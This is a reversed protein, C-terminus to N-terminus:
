STPSSARSSVGNPDPAHTLVCSRMADIRARPSSIEATEEFRTRSPAFRLEPMIEPTMLVGLGILTRGCDCFPGTEPRRSLRAGSNEGVAAVTMPFFAKTTLVLEDRRGRVLGGLIEEARGKSYVNACDFVNIGADLCRAFLKASTAEDADGGFSMTGFALRSVKVGTKGLFVYDM